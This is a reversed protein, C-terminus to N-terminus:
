RGIPRVLLPCGGKLYRNRSKLVIEAYGLNPPVRGGKHSRRIYGSGGNYAGLSYIENGKYRRLLSRLIRIGCEINEVPHYLDGCQYQKGTGPMVQMMGIAGAHSRIRPHFLSEVRMVGMVLAYEVRYKRALPEAVREAYACRVAPKAKEPFPEFVTGNSACSGLMWLSWVCFLKVRNGGM